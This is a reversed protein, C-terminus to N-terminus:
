EVGARRMVQAYPGAMIAKMVDEPGMEPAEQQQQSSSSRRLRRQDDRDGKRDDRYGREEQRHERDSHDRPM